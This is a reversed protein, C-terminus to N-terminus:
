KGITMLDIKGRITTITEVDINMGRESRKVMVQCGRSEGHQPIQPRM